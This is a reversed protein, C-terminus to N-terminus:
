RNAGGRRRRRGGGGGGGGGGPARTQPVQVQVQVVKPRDRDRDRRDRDRDRDREDRRRAPSRSRSRSRRRRDRDRDRFERPDDRRRPSRSRSRRRDRDPDDRFDRDRDRYERDRGRDKESPPNNYMQRAHLAQMRLQEFQWKPLPRDVLLAYAMPDDWAPIPFPFNDFSMPPPLEPPATTPPNPKQKQTVQQQFAPVSAVAKVGGEGDGDGGSGAGTAADGSGGSKQSVEPATGGSKTAGTGAAAAAAATAAAATGGDGGDAGASAGGSMGSPLALPAVGGASGSGNGTTTTVTPGELAKVEQKEPANGRRWFSDVAKRLMLNPLLSDCDQDTSGCFPCTPLAEEDDAVLMLKDRLCTDCATMQCCPIMVADRYLESCIPCKYEDPIEQKKEVKAVAGMARAFVHDNSALAGSTGDALKLGGENVQVLFSAPIGTPMRSKKIDYNPDGNTPCREIFHGPIKCRKCVYGPPPAGTHSTPGGVGRGGAPGAGRGGAPGMGRGRGRGGATTQREWDNAQNDLFSNLADEENAAELAPAYLEEGFDDDAVAPLPPPKTQKASPASAAQQAAAHQAQQAMVRASVSVRSVTVQSNKGILYGDDTYEEGTQSDALVLESDLHVKSANAGGSLNTKNQIASKLEGVSIYYGDFNVRDFTTASKFKFFIVSSM